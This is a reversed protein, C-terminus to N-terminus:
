LREYDSRAPGGLASEGLAIAAFIVFTIVHVGSCWLCINNIKFLEAWLLYLVFLLGLTAAAIRLWGINANGSRWLQPLCLAIMAVFYLLGLLAVPVGLIASYTSQTVKLCNVVGNDSCALTTSATYHEYTLYASVLLGAVSLVLTTWVLWSPVLRQRRRPGAAAAAASGRRAAGSSRPSTSGTSSGTSSGASRGNTTRARAPNGNTKAM